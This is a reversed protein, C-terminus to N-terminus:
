IEEFSIGSSLYFNLSKESPIMSHIYESSLLSDQIYIGSNRFGIRQLRNLGKRTYPNLFESWTQIYFVRAIGLPSIEM